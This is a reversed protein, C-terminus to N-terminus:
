EVKKNRTIFFYILYAIGVALPILGWVFNNGAVFWLAVSLAVGLFTLILGRRLNEMPTRKRLSKHDKFLEEPLEVGKELALRITKQKEQEKRFGWWVALIALLLGMVIASIPVLIGMMPLLVDEGM